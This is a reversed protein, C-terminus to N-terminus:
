LGLDRRLRDLYQNGYEGQYSHVEMGCLVAYEDQAQMLSEVDGHTLMGVSELLRYSDLRVILRRASKVREMALMGQDM